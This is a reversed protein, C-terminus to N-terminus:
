MFIFLALGLGTKPWTNNDFSFVNDQTLNVPHGRYHRPHRGDPGQGGEGQLTGQDDSPQAVPAGPLLGHPSAVTSLTQVVAKLCPFPIPAM